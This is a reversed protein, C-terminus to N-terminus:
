RARFWDLFWVITGKMRSCQIFSAMYPLLLAGLIRRSKHTLMAVLNYKAYGSKRYLMNLVNSKMSLKEGDHESEIV